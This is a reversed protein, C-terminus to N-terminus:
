RSRVVGVTVQFEGGNDSVVDDNAGLYLMGTAPMKISQQGAIAFPQGDDIRGVLAGRPGGPVPFSPNAAGPVITRRPAGAASVVDGPSPSLRVQGTAKFAVLDGARVDLGSATWQENGPVILTRVGGPGTQAVATTASPAQSSPPSARYIRAIESSTFDRQGSPTDLTIRLPATGGIDYLRGDIVQGNRLIVFQQGGKLKSQLEGSLQGGGVFEIVAVDDTGVRREQGDVRMTFGVGGLDVLDGSIRDGSRLILTAREQAGVPLALLWLLCIVLLKARKLM